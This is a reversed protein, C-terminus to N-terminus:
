RSGSGRRRGSGAARPSRARPARSGLRERERQDVEVLELRHVLLKPWRAPSVTSRARRRPAARRRAGGRGPPASRRRRTRGAAQRAGIDHGRLGITSRVRRSGAGRAAAPRRSSPAVAHAPRALQVRALLRGAQDLTGVRANRSALRRRPAAGDHRAEADVGRCSSSALRAPGGPGACPVPEGHGRSSPDRLQRPQEIRARDGLGRHRSQLPREAVLAARRAAARPRARSERHGPRPRPRRRRRPAGAPVTATPGSGARAADRHQDVVRLAIRLRRRAAAAAAHARCSPRHRQVGSRLQPARMSSSLRRRAPRRRDGLSAWSACVIASWTPAASRM